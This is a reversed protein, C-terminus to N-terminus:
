TSGVRNLIYIAVQTVINAQIGAVVDDMTVGWGRPLREAQAAPPLKIVDVLRFAGFGILYNTLSWPVFLLTIFMGAWEDTVIKKADHGFIKEAETASWVSLVCMALTVPIILLLNDKVVFYALLWAPVTGTTGPVLPSYGTYFGSAIFKVFTRKM